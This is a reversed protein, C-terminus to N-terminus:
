IHSIKTAYRLSLLLLFQLTSNDNFQFDIVEHVVMDSSHVRVILTDSSAPFTFFAFILSLIVASCSIDHSSFM